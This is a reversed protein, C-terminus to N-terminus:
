KWFQWWRRQDASRGARSAAIIKQIHREDRIRELQQKSWDFICCEVEPHAIIDSASYEKAAEFSDFVIWIQDGTSAWAGDDRVIKGTHIDARVVAFQGAELKPFQGSQTPMSFDM